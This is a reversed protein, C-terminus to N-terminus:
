LMAAHREHPLLFAGGKVELVVIGLNPHAVVLDAEGDRVWGEKRAQWAVSYFVVFSSALRSLVGFVNREAQSKPNGLVSEPLHEPYLKAM